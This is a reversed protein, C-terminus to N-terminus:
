NIIYTALNANLFYIREVKRLNAIQYICSIKYSVDCLAYRYGAFLTQSSMYANVSEGWSLIAAMTASLLEM